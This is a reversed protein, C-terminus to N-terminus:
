IDHRCRYAISCWPSYMIKWISQFRVCQGIAFYVNGNQCDNNRTFFNHATLLKVPLRPFPSSPQGSLPIRMKKPMWVLGCHHYEMRFALKLHAHKKLASQWHFRETYSCTEQEPWVKHEIIKSLTATVPNQVTYSILELRERDPASCKKSSFPVRPTSSGEFHCFKSSLIAVKQAQYDWWSFCVHVNNLCLLYTWGKSWQTFWM